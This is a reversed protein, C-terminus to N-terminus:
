DLCVIVGEEHRAADLYFTRFSAFCEAVRGWESEDARDAWFKYVGSAEMRAPAYHVRLSAATMPELLLAISEVEDPAVYRVPAGQPARVHEAIDRAGRVAKDFLADEASGSDNRRNASLLYHLEDWSRGLYCNRSALGPHRGALEGLQRWLKEAEPWARPGVGERFWRPVFLCVEKAGPM